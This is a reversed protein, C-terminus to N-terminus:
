RPKPKPAPTYDWWVGNEVDYLLSMTMHTGFNTGGSGPLVADDYLLAIYNTPLPEGMFEEITRVSHELFDMSPTIKDRIRVITLLTAGSHPLKVTREELYVGTGRLLFDVSEPRYEHTGGLLAVIKAEEDTIGDSIKPHSMIGLFDTTNNNELRSLSRVALADASGVSELFPMDLIRIAVDIVQQQFTEDEHRAIWYLEQIVTAEDATIGDQAWSKQLMKDALEPAYKGTRRLRSIAVTEDATISDGVWPKQLLASFVDPYWRACAILAEAATREDANDVGDAVWPLEGIEAARAQENRELWAGNELSAIPSPPRPTSTPRPTRTPGPTRTPTPQLTATPLPKPTFTPAPTYTPPVSTSTPTPEPTATAMPTPLSTPMDTPLPTATLSAAVAPALADTPVATPEPATCALATSTLMLGVTTLLLSVAFIKRTTM